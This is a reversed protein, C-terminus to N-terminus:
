SLDNADERKEHITECLSVVYPRSYMPVIILNTYFFFKNRLEWRFIGGWNSHRFHLQDSVYQPNWKKNLIYGRKEKIKLPYIFLKNRLRASFGCINRLVWTQLMLWRMKIYCTAKITYLHACTVVYTKRAVSKRTAHFFFRLHNRFM